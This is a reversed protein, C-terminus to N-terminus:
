DKPNFTLNRYETWGSWGASGSVHVYGNRKELIEVPMQFECNSPKTQRIDKFDLVEYIQCGKAIFGETPQVELVTALDKKYLWADSVSPIDYVMIKVQVWEGWEKFPKLLKGKSLEIINPGGPYLYGTASQKLVMYDSDIEKVPTADKTQLYWMPLWGEIEATKILAWEGDTKLVEVEINSSVRSQPEYLGEPKPEKYLTYTGHPRLNAVIPRASPEKIYSNNHTGAQTGECGALFILLTSIILFRLLDGM